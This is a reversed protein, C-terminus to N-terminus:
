IVTNKKNNTPILIYNNDWLNNTINKLKKIKQEYFYIDYKLENTIYSIIEEETINFGKLFFPQIEVLIVPNFFKIIKEMGKLAFLEAGEIDIKIFSIKKLNKFLLDDVKIAECKIIEEDNFSYYDEKGKLDNERDARHSQGASIAGFDVKPLRFELNTNKDNAAYKFLKVNNLKLKKIIIECVEFTFPVPEFGFVKGNQGVIKSLRDLYYAYNAGLDIVEDDKSVFYKLLEMEKEEVLRHKIDRIKAISQLFKYGTKGLIKFLLPKIIKRIPSNVSAM